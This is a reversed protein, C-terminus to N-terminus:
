PPLQGSAQSALLAGSMLAGAHLADAGAGAAVVLVVTRGYRRQASVLLRTGGASPASSRWLSAGGESPLADLTDIQLGLASGIEQRLRPVDSLPLDRHATLLARLGHAEPNSLQCFAGSPPGARFGRPLAVALGEPLHAWVDFQAAAIKDPGFEAVDRIASAAGPVGAALQALTPVASMLLFSQRACTLTAFLRLGGAADAASSAAEDDEAQAVLGAPLSVAHTADTPAATALSVAMIASALASKTEASAQAEPVGAVAGEALSM